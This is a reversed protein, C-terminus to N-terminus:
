SILPCDYYIHSGQGFRWSTFGLRTVNNPPPDACIIFPHDVLEPFDITIQGTKRIIVDIRALYFFHRISVLGLNKESNCIDPNKSDGGLINQSNIWPGIYFDWHKNSKTSLVMILDDDGSYYFRIRAYEGDLPNNNKFLKVPHYAISEYTQGSIVEYEKCGTLNKFRYFKNFADCQAVLVSTLLMWLM